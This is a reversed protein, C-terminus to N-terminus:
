SYDDRVEGFWAVADKIGNDISTFNVSLETRAKKNSYFSSICLSEINEISIPTEIGLFRLLSGFYGIIKISWYPVKIIRFNNKTHSRVKVFFEYFSLNENALIYAEGNKGYRMANIIGRSVDKACVFNKGGPPCFVFRNRLCNLIIRGSSPKSDNAGIIFTPNVVIVNMENSKSLVYHQARYKTIAYPIKSFPPKMGILENGLDEKAGWGFANATSVYIVKKINHKIAVNMVNKTGEINVKHFTDYLRLKPDVLAAIHIAFQCDSMANELDDICTIDGIFFKLNAHNFNPTYKRNRVFAKVLFGQELLELVTNTGLLGNAGTVLVKGNIEMVSETYLGKKNTRNLLEAIKIKRYPQGFLNFSLIFM